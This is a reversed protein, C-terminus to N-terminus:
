NNGSLYRMMADKVKFYEDCLMGELHLEGQDDIYARVKNSYYYVCKGLVKSEANELVKMDLLHHDKDKFLFSENEYIQPDQLPKLIDNELQGDIWLISQTYLESVGPYLIIPIKNISVEFQMKSGYIM